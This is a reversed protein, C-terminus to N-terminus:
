TIIAGERVLRVFTEVVIANYRIGAGEELEHLASEVGLAARYPRNSSMADFVDTVAVVQAGM